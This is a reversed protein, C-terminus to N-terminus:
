RAERARDVELRLAHLSVYIDRLFAALAAILLLISAMFVVMGFVAFDRQLVATAFTLLVLGCSVILWATDGTDIKPAEEQAFAMAPALLTALTLLCINRTNKTCPM